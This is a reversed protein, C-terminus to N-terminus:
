VVEDGLVGGLDGDGDDEYTAIAPSVCSFVLVLVLLYALLNRFFIKM